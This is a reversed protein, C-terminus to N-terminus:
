TPSGSTYESLPLTGVTTANRRGYSSNIYGPRHCRLPRALRPACQYISKRLPAACPRARRRSKTHAPTRLYLSARACLADRKVLCPNTKIDPPGGRSVPPTRPITYMDASGTSCRAGGLPGIAPLGRLLFPPRHLMTTPGYSEANRLQKESHEDEDHQRRQEDGRESLAGGLRALCHTQRVHPRYGEGEAHVQRIM